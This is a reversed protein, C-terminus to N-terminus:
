NFIRRAGYYRRVYSGSNLSSIIVGTTSTSAHIFEDNGIYIGVHGIGSGSPWPTFFVLDGPQLDSKNVYTGDNYQYSAGHSMKYGFQKYIYMTFGSCDFGNPGSGGYVYPYGKYQLALQAVDGGTGSYVVEEKKAAESEAKKKAEEEAKRKAEEEAKKKAIGADIMSQLVDTREDIPAAVAPLEADGPAALAATLSVQPLVAAEVVPMTNVSATVVEAFQQSQKPMALAVTIAGVVLLVTLALAILKTRM